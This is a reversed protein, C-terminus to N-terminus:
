EKAQKDHPVIVSASALSANGLSDIARWTLTYVRGNGKGSREARLFIRGDDTIIIDEMTHGDGRNDDPENSTISEIMVIPNVDCIDYVFISPTIRVFKHNPPWLIEPTVSIILQPPTTDVVTVKVTDSAKNGSADIATVTV